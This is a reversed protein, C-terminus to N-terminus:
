KRSRMEVAAMGTAPDCSVGSGETIPGQQIAPHLNTLIKCGDDASIRRTLHNGQMVFGDSLFTEDLLIRGKDILMARESETMKPYAEAGRMLVLLSRSADHVDRESPEQTWSVFSMPLSLAAAALAFFVSRGSRTPLDKLFRRWERRRLIHKDIM